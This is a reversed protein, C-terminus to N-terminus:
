CGFARSPPPVRLHRTLSRAVFAPTGRSRGIPELVAGAFNAEAVAAPLDEEVHSAATAFFPLCLAPGTVALGEALFPAQDVYCVRTAAFRVHGAIAQAAAEAAAAARLDNPSGHAAVVLTTAALELGGAAAAETLRAACFAPLAPELGFPPLITAHAGGAKDLREPLLTSVFWGDSMFMPYILPREGAAALARPLADSDALTAAAVHCGPLHGAVKAAFEVMAAEQRPPDSPSGHAVLIIAPVSM